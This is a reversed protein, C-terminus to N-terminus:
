SARRASGRLRRKPTRWKAGSHVRRDRRDRPPQQVRLGCEGCNAGGFPAGDGLFSALPKGQDDAHGASGLLPSLDRDPARRVPMRSDLQCDQWMSHRLGPQDVLAGVRRHDSRVRLQRENPEVFVMAAGDTNAEPQRVRLPRLLPALHLAEDRAHHLAECPRNQPLLSPPM